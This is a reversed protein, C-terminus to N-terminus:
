SAVPINEWIVKEEFGSRQDGDLNRIEVRTGDRYLQFTTTGDQSDFIFRYTKSKNLVNTGAPANVVPFYFRSVGRQVNAPVTAQYFLVNGDVYVSFIIPVACQFDIWGQYLFKWGDFGFVQMLTDFHTVACPLAETKPIIAYIQLTGAYGSTPVVRWQTGNLNSPLTITSARNFFTGSITFSYVSVGDLQLQMPVAVGNTNCQVDLWKFNKPCPYNLDSWPFDRWSFTFFETAGADGSSGTLRLGISYQVLGVASNVAAFYRNRTPVTGGAVVLSNTPSTAYNYYLDANVSDAPNMMELVIEGVQYDATPDGIPWYRWYTYKIPLGDTPLTTWGDTTSYFDSWWLYSQSATNTVGVLFNGSDPEVFLSTQAYVNGTPDIITDITWRQYITEYRLRRYSGNTDIYVVYLCNDAYAFSFASAQSMDAPAIGNVTQKRFIYKIKESVEQSDGGAWEYIGDYALYWIKNDGKCWCWKAFLGRDAPSKYPVGVQGQWVNLIYINDLNLCALIGPGVSAIGNIPNSPSGVNIQNVFNNALNVVPFAEPRGVKSQYLTSPNNPDGALFLCDFDQNVLDCVGRNIADCEITESSDASTINHNYQLYGEIWPGTTYTGGYGANTVICTESTNGFGVQFTSGLTIITGINAAVFSAPLNSLVMRIALLPFAMTVDSSSGGAAQSSTSYTTSSAPSALQFSSINATLPVPLSSVVPPNNDFELTEATDLSADAANDVFTVIGGSGPNTAYGVHRYLGDSFSGGRRFIDISGAGAIESIGNAVTLDSATGTM